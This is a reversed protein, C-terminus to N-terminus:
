TAAGSSEPAFRETCHQRMYEDKPSGAKAVTWTDLPDAAHKGAAVAEARTAYSAIVRWSPSEWVWRNFLLKTEIAAM